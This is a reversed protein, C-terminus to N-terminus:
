NLKIFQKMCYGDIDDATVIKFFKEHAVEENNDIVVVDGKNLVTVVKADKSPLARVNLKTAIVVGNVTNKVVLNEVIDINKDELDKNEILEEDPINKDQLVENGVLENVSTNEVDTNIGENSITMDVNQNEEM